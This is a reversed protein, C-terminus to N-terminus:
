AWPLVEPADGAYIEPFVLRMETTRGSSVDLKLTVGAILYRRETYLMAGPAKLTVVQREAWRRDDPRRWGTATVSISTAAAFAATRAKAAVVGPDTDMDGSTILKPRYIPIEDDTAVGQINPEGAYQTAVAYRSFRRQGDFDASVSLVPPQGEVLAAVPDREALTPGWSIVLKGDYSSNLFLRRPSALSRSFDEVTQGYEARATELPNTDNDARVQLGFPKCLEKAITSLALGSYELKGDISCDVLVGPLSRGQVNLMREGASTTPNVKDIRGKILRDDDIRIEVEQYGFPRFAARLDARGPDFPTSLSFADAIQDIDMSIEVDTWGTFERGEFVLRVDDAM